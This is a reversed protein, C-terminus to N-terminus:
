NQLRLRLSFIRYSAQQLHWARKFDVHGLFIHLMVLRLKFGSFQRARAATDSYYRRKAEEHTRRKELKQLDPPMTHMGPLPKKLNNLEAMAEGMAYLNTARRMASVSAPSIHAPAFLAVLVASVLLRSTPLPMTAICLIM